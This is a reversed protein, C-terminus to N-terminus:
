CGRCSPIWKRHSRIGRDPCGCLCFGVRPRESGGECMLTNRLNKCVQCTGPRHEGHQGPSMGSQLCPVDPGGVWEPAAAETTEVKPHGHIHQSIYLDPKTHVGAEFEKLHVGLSHFQQTM